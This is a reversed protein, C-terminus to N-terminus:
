LEPRAATSAVNQRLNKNLFDLTRKWVDVQADAHPKPQGGWLLYMRLVKNFNARCLPAHPPEIIHGAGPYYVIEMNDRRYEEPVLSRMHGVAAPNVCQDDEGQVFIFKAGHQWFQPVLMEDSPHYMERFSFMNGNVPVAREMRFGAPKVVKGEVTHEAGVPSISGNVCVLCKLKPRREAIFLSYGGGACNSVGGINSSDVNPHSALWDFAKLFYGFDLDSETIPLDEYRIYAFVFCAYGKSALMSSRHEIIVGSLGFVDIIGPFPGEGEPLFLIGILGNEQVPIRKVGPACYSRQLLTCALSPPNEVWPLSNFDQFGDQVAIFVNYPTMVDSKILRGPKVGPTTTLSWFLGVPDVGTYTGGLSPATLVDVVGQENAKYHGYSGYTKGSERLFAQVTISQGGRLGKISIDISEDMLAWTKSLEIRVTSSTPHSRPQPKLHNEITLLRNLSRTRIKERM